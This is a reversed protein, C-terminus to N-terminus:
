DRCDVAQLDFGHLGIGGAKKQDRKVRAGFAALRDCELKAMRIIEEEVHLLENAVLEVDYLHNPSICQRRIGSMGWDVDPVYRHAIGYLGGGVHVNAACYFGELHRILAINGAPVLM